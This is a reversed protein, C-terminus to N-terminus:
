AEDQVGLNNSMHLHVQRSSCLAIQMDCYSDFMNLNLTNQTWCIKITRCRNRMDTADTACTQGFAYSARTLLLPRFNCHMRNHGTQDLLDSPHRKPSNTNTLVLHM